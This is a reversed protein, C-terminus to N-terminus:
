NRTVPFTLSTRWGTQASQAHNRLPLYPNPRSMLVQVQQADSFERAPREIFALPYAVWLGGVVALWGTAAWM